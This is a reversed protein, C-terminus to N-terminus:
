HNWKLVGGVNGETDKYIGLWTHDGELWTDQVISGGAEVVKAMTEKVDGVHVFVRVTRM